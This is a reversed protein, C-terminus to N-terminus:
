IVDEELARLSVSVGIERGTMELAERLTSEDLEPPAEIEFLMVYVGGHSAVRSQVDTLNVDHAAFVGTIRALLGAKDPGYVTVIFRAASELTSQPADVIARVNIFLGHSTELPSLLSTLENLGIPPPPSVILIMAFEGSLRTMTTDEINCGAQFLADAIAHAMGPRDSGIATIIFM